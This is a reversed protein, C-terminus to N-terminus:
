VMRYPNNNPCLKNDDGRFQSCLNVETICTVPLHVKAQKITIFLNNYVITNTLPYVTNRRIFAGLVYASFSGKVM